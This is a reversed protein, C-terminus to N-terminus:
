GKVAARSKWDRREWPPKAVIRGTRESVRIKEGKESFRYSVETPKSCFFQCEKKVYSKNVKFVAIILVCVFIHSVLIILPSGPIGALKSEGTANIKM